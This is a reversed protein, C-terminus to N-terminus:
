RDDFGRPTPSSSPVLTIVSAALDSSGIPRRSAVFLKPPVVARCALHAEPQAGALDERQEALVARALAGADLQQRADIRGRAAADHMSPAGTAKPEGSSACRAPTATM